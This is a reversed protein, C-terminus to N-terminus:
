CSFGSPPLALHPSEPPSSLQTGSVTLQVRSNPRTSLHNLNALSKKPHNKDKTKKAAFRVNTVTMGTLISIATPYIRSGFCTINNPQLGDLCFCRSFVASSFKTPLFRQPRSAFLGIRCAGVGGIDTSPTETHHLLM